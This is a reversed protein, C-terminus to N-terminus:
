QRNAPQLTKNEVFLPLRCTVIDFLYLVSLYTSFAWSNLSLLLCLTVATMASLMHPAKCKLLELEVERYRSSRNFISLFKKKAHNIM